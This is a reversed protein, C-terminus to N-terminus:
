LRKEKKARILDDRLSGLDMSPVYGNLMQEMQDDHETETLRTVGPLFVPEGLLIGLEKNVYQRIMSMKRIDGKQSPINLMDGDKGLVKGDPMQWAYVGFEFPDEIGTIKKNKIRNPDIEM